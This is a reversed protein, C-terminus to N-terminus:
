KKNYKYIAILPVAFLALGALGFVLGPNGGPWHMTKFLIALLTLSTFLSATIYAALKM